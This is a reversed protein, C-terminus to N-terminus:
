QSAPTIEEHVSEAGNGYERAYWFDLKNEAPIQELFAAPIIEAEVAAAPEPVQSQYDRVAVLTLGVGAGFYFLKSGRGVLRFDAVDSSTHM